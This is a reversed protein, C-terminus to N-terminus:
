SDVVQKYSSPSDQELLFAWYPIMHGKETM